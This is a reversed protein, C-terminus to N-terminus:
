KPSQPSGLGEDGSPAAPAAEGEAGAGGEPPEQVKAGEGGQNEREGDVGGGTQAQAGDRGAAASAQAGGKAITDKLTQTLLAVDIPKALHGNMGAAFCRDREDAFAHATMAIIPLARFRPVARIRRTAEFGDMVPMQLDMLVADFPRPSESSKLLRVAAEGNEAVTVELGMKQMLSRAVLVNVENDEVLLVRHGVLDRDPAQPRKKPRAPAKAPAKQEALRRDEARRDVGFVCSFGVTTGRGPESEVRIKGGMLEVLRKTITLGLGTGGYQRTISTDAQTFARFLKRTQERSMGIGTDTVEFYPKFADLDKPGTPPSQAAAPIPPAAAPAKAAGEPPAPDDEPRWRRTKVTISGKKTFKFSNGVINIFVQGLRLPDGVLRDPLGEETEFVLAIGTKQIRERFLVETDALTKALSFPINELTMKGAEVKSFDLIDNIIGLLAQGSSHANEAYETQQPDLRTQLLLHTLGIIANMPTRIEHSMNALFESKAKSAAEAQSIARTLMTIDSLIMIVCVDAAGEEGSEGARKLTLSYCTRTKDQSLMSTETQFTEGNIGGPGFIHTIEPDEPDREPGEGAVVKALLGAGEQDLSHEELLMKMATNRYIPERELNFLALASPLSDLYSCIVDMTTNISKAIRNYDGRHPAPNIRHHLAGASAEITLDSIDSILAHVSDAMTQYAASLRGIEDTRLSYHTLEPSDFDGSANKIASETILKLPITITNRLFVRYLLAFIAIFLFTLLFGTADAQRVPALFDEKSVLIGLSWRTGPVPAFSIFMPGLLTEAAASGTEGAKMRSVVDLAQPGEGVTELISQRSYVKGQYLSAMLTGDENIIFATGRSGISLRTIIGYLTDYSYAGLLYFDSEGSHTLQDSSWVPIGMAIELGQDGVSTDEIAMNHTLGLLGWLKRGTVRTPSATSGTILTGTRDYIGLWTFDISRMARDLIKQKGSAAVSTSGLVSTDRILYFRDTLTHLQAALDQSASHAMPQLVNLFITETLSNMFFTMMYVLGTTLAMVVIVTVV